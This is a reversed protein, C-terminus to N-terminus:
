EPVPPTDLCGHAPPHTRKALFLAPIGVAAPIIVNQLFVLIGASLAATEPMGYMRTLILIFCGERVGLNGVAFPFLTTAVLMFAYATFAAQLTCPCLARLTFYFQVIMLIYVLCSLTLLYFREEARRPLMRFLGSFRAPFKGMVLLACALLLFAIAATMALPPLPLAAGMKGLGMLLAILGYLLIFLTFYIKESLTLLAITGAPIEPHCIGRGFEGARGPTIFGLTCGSLFSLASRLPSVPISASKLFADWRFAGLFLGVASLAFSLSLFLRDTALWLQRLKVPTLSGSKFIFFVFLAAVSIKLYLFLRDKLM